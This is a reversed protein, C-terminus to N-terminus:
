KRHLQEISDAGFSQQTLVQALRARQQPELIEREQLLQDILLRQQENQLEAIKAQEADIVARDVQEAFIAEILRNRHEGLSANSARLYALFPAEADHWRQLQSASLQLERSLETPAGSPMPLGDRSLKQWGLGALVGVNVLVSLVLANRLTTNSM